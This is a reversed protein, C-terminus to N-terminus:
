VSNRAAQERDRDGDEASETATAVLDLYVTLEEHWGVYSAFDHAHTLVRLATVRRLLPQSPTGGYGDTVAGSLAPIDAAPVGGIGRDRALALETLEALLWAIDFDAAGWALEEGTLLAPPGPDGGWPLVLSGLAPGGHLLVRPGPGTAASGAWAALLELRRAGLRTVAARHLRAASGAGDGGRLWRLLRAPGPPPTDPGPPAPVEHLRRLTVGVGRLAERVSAHAEEGPVHLLRAASFAGPVSYRVEDAGDHGDIRDDPLALRVPGTRASARLMATTAADPRPLDGEHAPGPRRVWLHEGRAGEAGGSRTLVTTRVRATGLTRVVRWGDQSAPRDRQGARTGTGSDPARM